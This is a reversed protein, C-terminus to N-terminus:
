LPQMAPAWAETNLIAIIEAHTYKGVITTLSSICEPEAGDWKVFTLTQDVSKAVTEASTECVQSFNVLGIESTSFICYERNEYSM